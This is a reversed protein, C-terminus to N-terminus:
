WAALEDKRWSQRNKRKLRRDQHISNTSGYRKLMAIAIPNRINSKKRKKSM